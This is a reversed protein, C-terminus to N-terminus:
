GWPHVERRSTCSATRSRASRMTRAAELDGLVAPLERKRASACLAGSRQLPSSRRPGRRSCRAPRPRALLRWALPHRGALLPTLRHEVVGWVIELDVGFYDHVLVDRMGAISKWPISPERARTAERIRKTAEGIIELNRVVADQQMASAFFAERGGTTYARTREIADRIHALYAREDVEGRV